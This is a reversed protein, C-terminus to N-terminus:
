FPLAESQRTKAEAEREAALLRPYARRALALAEVMDETYSFAQSSPQVIWANDRRTVLFADPIHYSIPARERLHWHDEEMWLEVMVPVMEYRRLNLTIMASNRRQDLEIATQALMEPPFRQALHDTIAAVAQARQQQEAAQQDRDYTDLLAVREEVQQLLKALALSEIPADMLVYKREICLSRWQM